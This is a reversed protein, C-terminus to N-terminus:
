LLKSYNLHFIIRLKQEKFLNHSGVYYALLWARLGFGQVTFFQHWDADSYKHFAGSCHEKSITLAYLINNVGM